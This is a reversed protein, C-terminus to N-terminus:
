LRVGETETHEDIPVGPYDWIYEGTEPHKHINIELETRGALEIIHAEDEIEHAKVIDGEQINKVIAMLLKPSLLFQAKNHRGVSTKTVLEKGDKFLSVDWTTYTDKMAVTIVGSTDAKSFSLKPSGDKSTQSVQWQAGPETSVPGSVLKSGDPFRKVVAVRVDSTWTFEYRGPYPIVPARWAICQAGITLKTNKQLILVNLDGEETLNNVIIKIKLTTVVSWCGLMFTLVVLAGKMKIEL